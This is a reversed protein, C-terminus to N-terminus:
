QGGEPVKRDFGEVILPVYDTQKGNESRWRRKEGIKRPYDKCKVVSDNGYDWREYERRASGGTRRFALSEQVDCTSATEEDVSEFSGWIDM